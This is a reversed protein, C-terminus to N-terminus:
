CRTLQVGHKRLVSFPAQPFVVPPPIRPRSLTIVDTDSPALHCTRSFGTSSLAMSALDLHFAPSYSAIHDITDFAASLDFLYVSM